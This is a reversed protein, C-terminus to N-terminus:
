EITDRSDHVGAFNEIRASVAKCPSGIPRIHGIWRRTMYGKTGAQANLTQASHRHLLSYSDVFERERREM